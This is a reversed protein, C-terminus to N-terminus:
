HGGATGRGPPLRARSRSATGSRGSTGSRSSSTPSSRLGPGQWRWLPVCSGPCPQPTPLSSSPLLTAPWARAPPFKCRECVLPPLPAACALLPGISRAWHRQMCLKSGCGVSGGCKGDMSASMSSLIRLMNPAVRLLMDQQSLQGGGGGGGRQRQPEFTYTCCEDLSRIFRQELRPARTVRDDALMVLLLTQRFAELSEKQHLGREVQLPPSVATLLRDSAGGVGGYLVSEHGM